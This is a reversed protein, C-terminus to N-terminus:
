VKNRLVELDTAYTYFQPAADLLWNPEISMLHRMYVKTTNQIEVFVVFKPRELIESYISIPHIHVLQDGRITKYDGSPHLYAANPFLGSVLSRQLNELRANCSTVKIGNQKLQCELRSAIEIANLLAQYNLCRREAWKQSSQSNVFGNFINLYSLLDGESVCINKLNNNSWISNAHRGPKLFIEKVQLMAVIKCAELTCSTTELSILIKSIKPDLNFQAMIEGSSTLKGSEDIAQLAYLLEFATVLNYAPIPSILQFKQPNEIGLSKLLMITEALSSRQVEPVTSEDLNEYEAESYLRYVTGSRTRGARGARQRASSKSIPLRVLNDIGLKHDYVKLKNFGCDIVFAIDNITLSTEAVNTSVVCVRKDRGHEDFVKSIQESKLSAHLPLVLLKRLDLRSYSRDAYDNLRECVYEVEDQGTVFILIKGSALRNAEHINIATEISADMYNPVPKERYYVKVPFSKGKCCLVAPKRFNEIQDIIDHDYTFFKCIEDINLTASCVVLRLDKRRIMLCKLLGLLIDTNLNREHVEDVMIVSYKILLPDSLLERLLLGETMFKIMTQEPSTVDKFRVAYGVTSGVNCNLDQSVRQALQMAAVRRPQTICILRKQNAEKCENYIGASFLIQPIRTSKGSGTEGAVILIRNKELSYLISEKYRDIILTEQRDEHTM